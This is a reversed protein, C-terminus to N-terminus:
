EGPLFQPTKLTMELKHFVQNLISELARKAQFGNNQAWLKANEQIDEQAQPLSETASINYQFIPRELPNEASVMRRMKESTPYLTLFLTGTMVNFQPNLKYIFKSTLVCDTNAKRFIEQHVEDNIDTLFNVRQVHLWNTNQLSHSLRDRFKEQFEFKAVEKQLNVLAEDACDERYSMVAGDVLAFVLGGGTYTSINSKEVDAKIQKDCEKIYVETSSIEKQVTEPLSVIEKKTACGSFHSWM